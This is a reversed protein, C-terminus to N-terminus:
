RFRDLLDASYRYIRVCGAARLDEEPFGGCLVGVTRSGPAAPRSLMTRPIASSLRRRGPEVKVRDIAVEFVDPCPKSCDVDSGATEADVLDSIHPAKQLEGARRREGVLRDRHPFWRTSVCSCTASGRFRGPRPCINASSCTGATNRSAEASGSSSITPCSCRFSHDGGKGIQGRVEAYSRSASIRSRKRGLRQM